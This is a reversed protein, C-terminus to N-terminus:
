FLGSEFKWRWTEATNSITSFGSMNKEPTPNQTNLNGDQYAEPLLGIKKLQLIIKKFRNFKNEKGLLVIGMCYKSFNTPLINLTKLLLFFDSKFLYQSQKLEAIVLNDLSITRGQHSFKLNVDFTLREQNIPNALTIRDYIVWLVPKVEDALHRYSSDLCQKAFEKAPESLGPTICPDTLRLRTKTMKKKNNKHKVEVYCESTDVYERCRIKYRNGRKDHHQRYFFHDPTDYYLTKYTFTRKDAMELMSYNRYLHDFVRPLKNRHFIFKTDYRKMLSLADLGGRDIKPFATLWCNLANMSIVTEHTM